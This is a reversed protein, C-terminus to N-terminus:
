GEKSGTEYPIEKGARKMGDEWMERLTKRGRGEEKARAEKEERRHRARLYLEPKRVNLDALGVLPVRRELDAAMPSNLDPVFSGYYGQRAIYAAHDLISPTVSLYFEKTSTDNASTIPPSTTSHPESSPIPNPTFTPFPISPSSQPVATSPTEVIISNPPEEDYKDGWGTSKSILDLLNDDEKEKAKPKVSKLSVIEEGFQNRETLGIVNEGEYISKSEKPSEGEDEARQYQRPDQM